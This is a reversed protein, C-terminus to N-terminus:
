TRSRHTCRRVLKSGLSLTYISAAAVVASHCRRKVSIFQEINHEAKDTATIV